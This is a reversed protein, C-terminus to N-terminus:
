SLRCESVDFRDMVAGRGHSSLAGHAGAGTRRGSGSARVAVSPRVLDVATARATRLCLAARAHTRGMQAARALSGGGLRRVLNVVTRTHPLPERTTPSVAGHEALWEDFAAEEYSHGDAAVVPKRMMRGSIPCLLVHRLASPELSRRRPLSLQGATHKETKGGHQLLITAVELHQHRLADQLPTGGWRDVPNPNAGATGVLYAVTEARGESAALHLATRDDYDRDDVSNGPQNIYMDLLTVNGTAAAAAAHLVRHNGRSHSSLESGQVGGHNLLAIACETHKHRLADQLPTAGWRDTPNVHVGRDLLFAVVELMGESAALHLPTRQDYDGQNLNSEAATALAELHEVHGRAAAECAQLMVSSRKYASIGGGGDHVSAGEAILLNAVALHHHRMADALPTGGWPDATDIAAGARLLIRVVDVQGASAALHLATRGDSNVDNVAVDGSRLVHQVAEVNGEAASTCLLAAKMMTLSYRSERGQRRDPSGRDAVAASGDATSSAWGSGGDAPPRSFLRGGVERPVGVYCPPSPPQLQMSPAADLGAGPSESAGVRHLVTVIARVLHVDEANALAAKASSLNMAVLEFMCHIELREGSCTELELTEIVGADDDSGGVPPGDLMACLAAALRERHSDAVLGGPGELLSRGVMSALQAECSLLRVLSPSLRWLTGDSRVDFFLAGAQGWAQGGAQGGTAKLRGDDLVPSRSKPSPTAAAAYGRALPSAATFSPFARALTNIAEQKESGADRGEAASVANGPGSALPSALDKRLVAEWDLGDFFPHGRVEWAGADGSGLRKAADVVLLKELLDRAHAGVFEPIDYTLDANTLKAVLEQIGSAEFPTVGVLLEYTLVGAAWWDVAYSYGGTQLVEPAMYAPTGCITSTLPSAGGSQLLRKAIGFDALVVHGDVGLLINEPKLDRYIVRQGHLHQLALATEGLVLQAESEAMPGRAEIHTLLDGGGAYTLVLYFNAADQFAHHLGVIFPHRLTQLIKNEEIVSKIARESGLSGKSIMKMAYLKGTQLRRVLLVQATSGSGLAGLVDYSQQVSEDAKSRPM